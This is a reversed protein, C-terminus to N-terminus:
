AAAFMTLGEELSIEEVGVEQLVAQLWTPREQRVSQWRRRCVRFSPPRARSSPRTTRPGCTARCSPWPSVPGSSRQGGRRRVRDLAHHQQRRRRGPRSRRPARSRAGGQATRGGAAPGRLGRHRPRGPDSRGPAGPRRGRRGDAARGHLRRRAPADVGRARHLRARLRTGALGVPRRGPRRIGAFARRPRAAAAATPRCQGGSGARVEHLALAIRNHVLSIM